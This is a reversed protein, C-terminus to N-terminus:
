APAGSTVLLPWRTPMSHAGPGQDRREPNGAQCWGLRVPSALHVRRAHHHGELLDTSLRRAPLTSLQALKNGKKDSLHMCRQTFRTVRSPMLREPLDTWVHPGVFSSLKCVPYAMNLKEFYGSLLLFQSVRVEMGYSKFALQTWSAPAHRVLAGSM